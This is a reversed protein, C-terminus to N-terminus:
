RSRESLPSPSPTPALAPAPAPAHDVRALDQTAPGNILRGNTAFRSGHCPCDWTQEAANFDVLCGLHPCVASCVSLAGHADRFAAVRKKGLRVLKGEGAAVEDLSRVEARRMRDGIFHLPFDVNERVYDVASALPTVRTARYLEAWPSERGLVMDFFMLAAVTGFTMGNGSFGTAVLVEESAPARGIYPLGDVPEVIQGSWAYAFSRVRFHKETWEALAAYRERTDDDQGTRHDEGGVILVDGAGDKAARMYHYPDATDWFLGFPVPGELRAGLAYSRYHAVKTQLLVRSLPANACVLVHDATVVGRDTLVKCPGGDHVDVVRTEEFVHSGQGAISEALPLVYDRVHFQAQNEFRLAAHVPFPLGPVDRTVSVACGADRAADCEKELERADDASEAYLYGPLRTFSSIGMAHSWSEIQAIAARSSEAVIRAGDKGFKQALTHYRTDLAETLHATTHGTEGQAVRNAELVCVRKGARKLLAAASIGTIGGGVIAVDVAVDGLQAPFRREAHTRIWFPSTDAPFRMTDRESQM